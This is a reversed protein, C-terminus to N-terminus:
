CYPLGACTSCCKDESSIFVRSFMRLCLSMLAEAGNPDWIFVVTGELYMVVGVMPSFDIVEPSLELELLAEEMVLSGFADWLRGSSMSDRDRQLVKSLDSTSSWCRHEVCSMLSSGFAIKRTSRRKM